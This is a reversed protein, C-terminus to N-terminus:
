NEKNKIIYKKTIKERNLSEEKKNFVIVETLIFYIGMFGYFILTGIAMICIVLLMIGVGLDVLQWINNTLTEM